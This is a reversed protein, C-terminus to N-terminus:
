SSVLVRDAEFRRLAFTTGGVRVAIPERGPFGHAIVRVSEGEVFGIEMLRQNLQRDAEQEAPRIGLVRAPTLAPLQALSQPVPV